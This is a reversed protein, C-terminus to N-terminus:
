IPVLSHKTQDKKGSGVTQCQFGPHSSMNRLTRFSQKEIPAPPYTIQNSHALVSRLTSPQTFGSATLARREPTREQSVGGSPM